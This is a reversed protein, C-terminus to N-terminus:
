GRFRLFRVIVFILLLIVALALGAVALVGLFTLSDSSWFIGVLSGLQLVIWSGIAGFIDLVGSLLSGNTVSVNPVLEVSPNRFVDSLFVCIDDGVSCCYACYSLELSDSSYTFYFAIVYDRLSFEIVTEDSSFVFPSSIYLPSDYGDYFSLVYEGKLPASLSIVGGDDIIPFLVSEAASAPFCFFSVALIAVIMLPMIRKFM